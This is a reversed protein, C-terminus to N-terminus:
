DMVQVCPVENWSYAQNRKKKEFVILSGLSMQGKFHSLMGATIFLPIQAVLEKSRAM